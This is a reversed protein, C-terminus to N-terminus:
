VGGKGEVWVGGGECAKVKWVAKSDTGKEGAKIGARRFFLLPTRVINRTEMGEDAGGAEM